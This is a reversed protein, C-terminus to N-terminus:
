ETQIKPVNPLGVTNPPDGENPEAGVNPPEGDNPSEGLLTNPACVVPLTKTSLM